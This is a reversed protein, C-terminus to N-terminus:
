SAAAATEVQFTEGEELTDTLQVGTTEPLYLASLGSFICLACCLGYPVSKNTATGLERLFPAVIAATLSVISCTGVGVNRVLTPYIEATYVYLIGFSATILFKGLMAFSTKLWSLDGTFPISLGCAAGALIMSLSQSKRRGTKQVALISFAYAPFEVAGAVAFNLFPDGALDSTSLSTAFYTFSAVYWCGCLILTRKRLVPKRVLDIFTAKGECVDQPGKKFETLLEELKKEAEVNDLANRKVAQMIVNKAKDLKGSALLWRPSEPLIWYAVGLVTPGIVAVLHIYFWDRAFYAVIALLLYGIAWGFEYALGLPSRLSPGIVEMMLIFSTSGVGSGGFSIFYRIIVFMLFSKALLAAFGAVLLITLAICIVTRRGIRDALQGFIIISTMCGAMFVSQTLSVLWQDSCVLNWREVITSGYFDNDYEWSVCKTRTKNDRKDLDWMECRSYRDATVAPVAMAKWKQVPMDKYPETRACWHDMDPAVVILIFTQYAGFISIAAAFVFTTRQFPGYKGIIDTLDVRKHVSM